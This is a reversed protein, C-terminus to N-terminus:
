MLKFINEFFLKILKPLKQKNLLSLSLVNILYKKNTLGPVLKSIKQTM